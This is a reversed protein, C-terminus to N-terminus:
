IFREHHLKEFCSAHGRILHHFVPYVSFSDASGIHNIVAAQTAHKCRQICKNLAKTVSLGVLVCKGYYSIKCHSNLQMNSYFM